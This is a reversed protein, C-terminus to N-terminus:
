QCMRHFEPLSVLPIANRAVIQPAMIKPPGGCTRILAASYFRYGVVVIALNAVDRPLARTYEAAGVYWGESTNGSDALAPM